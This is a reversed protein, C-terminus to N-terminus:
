RLEEELKKNAKEKHKILQLLENRERAIEKLSKYFDKVNKESFCFLNL